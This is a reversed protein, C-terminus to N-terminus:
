WDDHNGNRDDTSKNSKVEDEGDWRGVDGSCGGTGLEDGSRALGVGVAGGFAATEFGAFAGAGDDGLLTIASTAESVLFRVIFSSLSNLSRVSNKWTPLTIPDRITITRRLSFTCSGLLAILLWHGLACLLSLSLLATGRLLTTSRLRCALLTGLEDSSCALAICVTSASAASELAAFAGTGDNCLRAITSTPEAIPLGVITSSLSEKFSIWPSLAYAYGTVKKEQSLTYPIQKRENKKQWPHQDRLIVNTVHIRHKM